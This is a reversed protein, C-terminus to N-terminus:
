LRRIPVVVTEDNLTFDVTECRIDDVTGGLGPNNGDDVVQTGYCLTAELNAPATEAQWCARSEEQYTRTHLGIFPASISEGPGIAAVRDVECPETCAVACDREDERCNCTTCFNTTGLSQGASTFNYWVGSECNQAEQVFVTQNTENLLEIQNTSELM